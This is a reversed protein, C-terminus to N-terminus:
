MDQDDDLMHSCYEEHPRSGVTYGPYAGSQALEDVSPSQLSRPTDDGRAGGQEVNSEGLPGPRPQLVYRSEQAGTNEFSGYSAPESLPRSQYGQSTSM